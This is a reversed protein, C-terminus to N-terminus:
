PKAEKVAERAARIDDAMVFCLHNLRNEIAALAASRGRRQELAERAQRQLRVVESQYKCLCRLLLPEAERQARRYAEADEETAFELSTGNPGAIYVTV